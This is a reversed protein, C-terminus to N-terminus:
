EQKESRSWYEHISQILRQLESLQHPKEFYGAVGLDFCEQVEEPRSSSSLVVTPLRPVEQDEHLERLLEVGDMVPMSIDLLILRPKPRQEAEWDRGRLFREAAQGNTAEYIHISGNCRELSQRLARRDIPDDDVVLVADLM